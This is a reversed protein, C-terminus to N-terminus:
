LNNIQYDTSQIREASIFRNNDFTLKYVDPMHLTKWFQFDYKSDFYNMLLVMINGHTGIVINKDEYKKLINQMCIVARRQAVDNSEGGEYAFSWDEWVNEIADNFDAVPESSLLRERLDEEIEISVHYTNAIGQVTQIARKYPSSIVVDIHKDKLLHTVNEADLHGKESLPREREEKTYTSHAHRVFYIITM